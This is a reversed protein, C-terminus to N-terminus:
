LEGGGGSRKVRVKRAEEEMVDVRKVMSGKLVDVVEDKRFLLCTYTPCNTLKTSTDRLLTSNRHWPRHNTPRRPSLSPSTPMTRKKPCNLTPDLHTQIM